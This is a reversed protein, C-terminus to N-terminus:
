NGQTMHSRGSRPILSSDGANAALSKVMMDGPFGQIYVVIYLIPFQYPGLPFEWITWHDLSLGKQAPLPTLDRPPSALGVYGSAQNVLFIFPDVTYCLSSQDISQLPRYPFLIQSSYIYMCVYLQNVKKICSSTVCCQLDVIGQYFNLFM